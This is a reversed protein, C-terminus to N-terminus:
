IAGEPIDGADAPKTSLMGCLALLEDDTCASLSGRQFNEKVYKTMDANTWGIDPLHKVIYNLRDPKSAPIGDSETAPADSAAKAPAGSKEPKPGNCWTGDPLKHSYWAAKGDKGEHRYMRSKHIGCWDARDGGNVGLERKEDEGGEHASLFGSAMTALLTAAVLARKQAMGRVTNDIARVDTYGKAQLSLYAKQMNEEDSSCSREVAAKLQGTSLSVLKCKYTHAVRQATVEGAVHEYEIGLGFLFTFKEAGPKYLSRQHTGPIVGYDTDAILQKDIFDQLQTLMRAMEAIPMVPGYTVIQPQEQLVVATGTNDSASDLAMKM